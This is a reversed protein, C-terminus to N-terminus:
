AEKYKDMLDILAEKVFKYQYGRGGIFEKWQKKIKEPLFVVMRKGKTSPYSLNKNTKVTSV